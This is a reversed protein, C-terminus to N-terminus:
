KASEKFMNIATEEVEENLIFLAVYNGDVIIEANEAAEQEAPYFANGIKDQLLAEMNAKVADVQGEKAKAMVILGPGPSIGTEAIAYEEVVETDIHYAENALTEDIPMPMRVLGEEIMANLLEELPAKEVAEAEGSGAEVQPKGSSCGVLATTSAVLIMLIAVFKKM